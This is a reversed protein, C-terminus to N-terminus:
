EFFRIDLELMPDEDQDWQKAPDDLSSPPNEDDNAGFRTYLFYGAAGLLAAAGTSAGAILPVNSNDTSDQPPPTDQYPQDNHDTITKSRLSPPTTTPVATAHTSRNLFLILALTPNRLLKM